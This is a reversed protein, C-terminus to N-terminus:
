QEYKGRTFFLSAGAGIAAIAFIGLDIGGMFPPLAFMVGFGLLVLAIGLWTRLVQRRPFFYLLVIGLGALAYQSYLSM